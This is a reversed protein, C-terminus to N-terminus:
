RKSRLIVIPKHKVTELMEWSVETLGVKFNDAMDWVTRGAGSGRARNASEAIELADEVQVECGAVATPTARRRLRLFRGMVYALAGGFSHIGRIPNPRPTFHFNRFSYTKDTDAIIVCIRKQLKRLLERQIGQAVEEANRLPLSVYSYAVNSADVGGESGFMLAQLPGCHQLILQKHRSGAESPYARLRQLFGAQFHCVPGLVYSWVIRMWLKAILKSNLTPTVTNEDVVNGVATSIAKESVAVFDGDDVKGRVADTIEQVYNSKPRWYKTAVALVRYRAMLM